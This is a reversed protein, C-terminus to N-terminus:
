FSSNVGLIFQRGLWMPWDLGTTGGQIYRTDNFVNKVGANININSKEINFTESLNWQTNLSLVQSEENPNSEPIFEEIQRRSKGYESVGFHSYQATFELSEIPKVAIRQHFISQPQHKEDGSKLNTFTSVVSELIVGDYPFLKLALDYGYSDDSIDNVFQLPDQLTPRRYPNIAGANENKWVSASFNVESINYYIEADITTVKEPNLGTPNPKLNGYVTTYKEYPTPNRFAQAWESKVGFEDSVNWVFGFRPVFDVDANAPKNIQGGTFLKLPEWPRVDAQFYM